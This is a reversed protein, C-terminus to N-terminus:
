ENEPVGREGTAGSAGYDKIGILEEDKIDIEEIDAIEMDMRTMRMM